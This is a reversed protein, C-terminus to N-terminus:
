VPKHGTMVFAGGFSLPYVCVDILGAERWYGAISEVPHRRIFNLINPGLFATVEPWGGPALKGMGPMLLHVYLSWLWHIATSPPVGFELMSIRGGPSVVRAIEHMTEQPNNVYRLLFTFSVADFIESRFPLAEASGEVFRISDALGNARARQAGETLMARSIDLGTVLCGARALDLAVAGTGTSVDLVREGPWPKLTALLVRRWHSYQLLSFAEAWFDYGGAIGAFLRRALINGSSVLIGSGM